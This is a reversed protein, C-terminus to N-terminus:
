NKSINHKNASMNKKITETFNFNQIQSLAMFNRVRRFIKHERTRQYTMNVQM